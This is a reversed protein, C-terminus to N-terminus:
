PLFFSTHLPKAGEFVIKGGRRQGLPVFPLVKTHVKGRLQSYLRNLGEVKAQRPILNERFIITAICRRIHLSFITVAIAEATRRNDGTLMEVEIGIKHLEELVEKANPKLTDALAIIGVVQSDIGLFMVTKGKLWLRNAEEELGNLLFDRDKMLRLNGLLLKKGEVSAEVGHGPIANFDSALSLELKKESAAKVIAEGLTLLYGIDIQEVQSSPIEVLL